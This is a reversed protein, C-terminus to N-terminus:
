QRPEGNVPHELRVVGTLGRLKLVLPRGGGRQSFEILVDERATGDPLFTAVSTWPGGGGSEQQANGADTAAASDASAFRIGKPLADEQILPPPGADDSPGNGSWYAGSDPAVRFRGEGPIIAFRYPHGEEIARSRAAAWAARVMDVGATLRYGGYMAEMSPYALAAFMVMVALVLVLEFLTFASRACTSARAPRSVTSTGLISM